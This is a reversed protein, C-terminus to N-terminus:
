FKYSAGLRVVNTNTSNWTFLIPFPPTLFAPNSALNSTGSLRYFLYEARLMWHAAAMWEVGGGVVYGSQTKNFPVIWNNSGATANLFSANYHFGGWAGGGTVYLLLNSTPIFGLRGRASALWELNRTWTTPQATDPTGTGFNTPIATLDTDIVTKSVDGEVGILWNPGAQWNYGIQGGGLTGVESSTALTPNLGFLPFPLYDARLNGRNSGSGAHVGIYFGTWSLVEPPPPPAKVAMDAANAIRLPAAILLAALAFRGYKAYRM